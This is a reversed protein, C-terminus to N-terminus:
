SIKLFYQQTCDSFRSNYFSLYDEFFPSNITDFIIQFDINVTQMISIFKLILFKINRQM